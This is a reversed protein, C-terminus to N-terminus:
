GPSMGTSVPDLDVSLGLSSELGGRLPGRYRGLGGPESWGTGGGRQMWAQQGMKGWYRLLLVERAPAAGAASGRWPQRPRSAKDHESVGGRLQPFRALCIAVASVFARASPLRVRAARRAWAPLSPRCRCSAELSVLWCFCPTLQGLQEPSEVSIWGRSGARERAQWGRAARAM